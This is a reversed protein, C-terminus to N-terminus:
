LLKQGRHEASHRSPRRKCLLARAGQSSSALERSRGTRDCVMEILADIPQGNSRRRERDKERARLAEVRVHQKTNKLQEALGVLAATGPM